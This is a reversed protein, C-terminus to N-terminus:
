FEIRCEIKRKDRGIKKSRSGIKTMHLDVQRSIIDGHHFWRQVMCAQRECCGGKECCTKHRHQLWRPIGDEV